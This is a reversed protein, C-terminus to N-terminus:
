TSYEYFFTEADRNTCFEDRIQVNIDLVSFSASNMNGYLKVKSLDFCMFKQKLRDFDAKNADSIPYFKSKEGTLEEETCIHPDEM